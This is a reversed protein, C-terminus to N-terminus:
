NTMIVYDAKQQPNQDDIYKKEEDMYKAWIETVDKGRQEMERAVGRQMGIEAPCEVWITFDFSSFLDSHLASVGEIIVIGEPKVEKWTTFKKIHYDYIQYKGAKSNKIPVIVQKLLKKRDAGRMPYVIDDLHVITVHALEKQLKEALTSKGSGGRGDIAIFLTQKKPLSVIKNVLGNINEIFFNYCFDTFNGLSVCIGMSSYKSFYYVYPNLIHFTVIRRM